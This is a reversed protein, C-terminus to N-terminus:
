MADPRVQTSSIQYAAQEIAIAESM